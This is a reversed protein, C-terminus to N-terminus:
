PWVLCGLLLFLTGPAPLLTRSVWAGMNPSGCSSLAVCSNCTHLPDPLDSLVSASQQKPRKLGESGQKTLETLWTRTPNKAGRAGVTRGGLCHWTHVGEWPMPRLNSWDNACTQAVRVEACRESLVFQLNFTKHSPQHGLGEVSLRAQNCSIAMPGQHVEQQNVGLTVTSRWDAASIRNGSRFVTSDQADSSIM